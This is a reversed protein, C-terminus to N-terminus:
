QSVNGDHKAARFIGFGSWVIEGVDILHGAIVREGRHLLLQGIGEFEKRTDRFFRRKVAVGGIFPVNALNEIVDCVGFASKGKAGEPKRSPELRREWAVVLVDARFAGLGISNRPEIM